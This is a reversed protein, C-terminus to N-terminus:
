FYVPFSGFPSSFNSYPSYPQYGKSIGISGEIRFRENVKYEVGFDFGQSSLDVARPNVTLSSLDTQKWITGRITTKANYSYLGSLYIRGVAFNEPISTKSDSNQIRRNMDFSGLLVSMGTEFSWKKNFPITMSPSIETGLMTTGRNGTLLYSGLKVHYSPKLAFVTASSGKFDSQATTLTSTTLTIFLLFVVFLVKKKYILQSKNMIQHVILM